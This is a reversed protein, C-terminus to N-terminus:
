YEQLFRASLGRMRSSVIACAFAGDPSLLERRLNRLPAAKAAAAVTVAGLM